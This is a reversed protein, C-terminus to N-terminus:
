NRVVKPEDESWDRHWSFTAVLKSKVTGVVRALQITLLLLYYGWNFIQFDLEAEAFYM